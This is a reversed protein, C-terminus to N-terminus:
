NISFFMKSKIFTSDNTNNYLDKFDFSLQANLNLDDSFLESSQSQAINKFNIFYLVCLLLINKTQKNFKM